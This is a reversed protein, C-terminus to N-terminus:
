VSDDDDGDNQVVTEDWVQVVVMSPMVTVSHVVM